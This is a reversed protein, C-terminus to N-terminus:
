NAWVFNFQNGKVVTLPKTFHDTRDTSHPFMAYLEMEYPKKALLPTAIIKIENCYFEMYTEINNKCLEHKKNIKWNTITFSLTDPIDARREPSGVNCRLSVIRGDHSFYVVGGRCSDDDSTEHLLVTNGVLITIVRDSPLEEARDGAAERGLITSIESLNYIIPQTDDIKTRESATEISFHPCETANGKLITETFRDGVIPMTTSNRPGAAYIGIQNGGSSPASRPSLLKFVRFRQCGANPNLQDCFNDVELRHPFVSCERAKRQGYYIYHGNIFYRLTGDKSSLTNGLLFKRAKEGHLEILGAMESRAVQRRKGHKASASCPALAIALGCFVLARAIMTITRMM